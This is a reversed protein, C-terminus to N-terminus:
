HPLAMVHSRYTFPAKPPHQRITKSLPRYQQPTPSGPQTAKQPCDSQQNVTCISSPSKQQPNCSEKKQCRPYEQRDESDHPCKQNHPDQHHDMKLAVIREKEVTYLCGLLEPSSPAPKLRNMPRKEEKHFSLHACAWAHPVKYM